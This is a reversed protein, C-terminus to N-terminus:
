GQKEVEQLPWKQELNTHRTHKEKQLVPQRHNMYVIFRIRVIEKKLSHKKKYKIFKSEYQKLSEQSLKRELERVIRHGITQSKKREMTAKKKRKTHHVFYADRLHQKVVRKYTQRQKVWEFEAIKTYNDIIKEALKADTPFTINKEMVTTDIQVEKENKAEPHLAVTQRLVFELGNEKLRKRFHVFESPDFPQKTQFFNGRYFIAM